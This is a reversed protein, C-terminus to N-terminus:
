CDINTAQDTEEQAAAGQAERFNNVIKCGTQHTAHKAVSSSYIFM